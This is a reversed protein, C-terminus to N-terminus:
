KGPSNGPSNSVFLYKGSSDVTVSPLLRSKEFIDYGKKLSKWFHLLERDDGVADELQKMGTENM